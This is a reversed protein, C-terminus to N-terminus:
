QHSAVYAADDAMEAEGYHRTIGRRTLEHGFVFPHVGAVQAASGFSALEREYLACALELRLRDHIEVTSGPIASLIEEPIDLTVSM